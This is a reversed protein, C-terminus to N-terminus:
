SAKTKKRTRRARKPAAAAAPRQGDVPAALRDLRDEISQLRDSIAKLDARSPMNMATLTRGIMDNMAQQMQTTVDMARDLVASFEPSGPHRDAMQKFAAEWQSLLDRWMAIPDFPHQERMRKGQVVRRAGPDAQRHPM